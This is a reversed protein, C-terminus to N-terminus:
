ISVMVFGVAFCVLVFILVLKDTTRDEGEFESGFAERSTRPAQAKHQHNHHQFNRWQTITLERNM